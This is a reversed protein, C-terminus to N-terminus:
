PASLKKYMRVQTQHLARLAPGTEKCVKHGFDILLPGRGASQTNNCFEEGHRIHEVAIRLLVGLFRRQPVVLRVAPVPYPLHIASRTRKEIEVEGDLVTFPRPADLNM